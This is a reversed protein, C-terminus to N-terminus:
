KVSYEDPFDFNIPQAVAAGRDGEVNDRKTPAANGNVAERGLGEGGGEVRSLARDTKDRARVGVRILGIDKM